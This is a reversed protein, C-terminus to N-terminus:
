LHLRYRMGFIISNMLVSDRSNLPLIRTPGPAQAAPALPRVNNKNEVNVDNSETCSTGNRSVFADDREKWIWHYGCVFHDIGTHLRLTREEWQAALHIHQASEVSMSGVPM